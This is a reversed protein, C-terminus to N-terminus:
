LRAVRTFTDGYYIGDHQNYGQALLRTNNRIVKDDEDFKNKAGM